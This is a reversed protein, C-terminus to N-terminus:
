RQQLILKAFVGIFTDAPLEEVHITHKVDKVFKKLRPPLTKVLDSGSLDGNNYCRVIKSELGGELASELEAPVSKSFGELLHADCGLSRFSGAIDKITSVTSKKYFSSMHHRQKDPKGVLGEAYMEQVYGYLKTLFKKWLSQRAEKGVGTFAGGANPLILAKYRMLDFNEWYHEKDQAAKLLKEKDWRLDIAKQVAAYAFASIEHPDLIYMYDKNAMDAVIVPLVHYWLIDLVEQSVEERLTNRLEQLIRDKKKLIFPPTLADVKHDEAELAGSTVKSHVEESLRLLKSSAKRYSAGDKTADLFDYYIDYMFGSHLVDTITNTFRSERSISEAVQKYSYTTPLDSGLYKPLKSHQEAHVLEHGIVAELGKVFSPISNPNTLVHYIDSCTVKLIVCANEGDYEASIGKNKSLVNVVELRCITKDLGRRKIEKNVIDAIIDGATYAEETEKESLDEPWLASLLEEDISLGATYQLSETLTKIIRALADKDPMVAKAVLDTSAKIEKQESLYNDMASLNNEM